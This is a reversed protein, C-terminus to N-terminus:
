YYKGGVVFRGLAKIFLMVLICWLFNITCLPAFLFVYKWYKTIFDYALSLDDQLIVTIIFNLVICGYWILAIISIM